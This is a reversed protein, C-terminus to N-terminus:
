LRRANWAAEMPLPEDTTIQDVRCEMPIGLVRTFQPHSPNLTCADVLKGNQHLAGVIDTSRERARLILPFALYITSAQPAAALVFDAFRAFDAETHLALAQPTECPDYGIRLRM